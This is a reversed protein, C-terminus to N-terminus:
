NIEEPQASPKPIDLPKAAEQRIQEAVQQTYIKAASEILHDVNEMQYKDFTLPKDMVLHLRDSSQTFKKLGQRVKRIYRRFQPSDYLEEYFPSSVFYVDFEHKEALFQIAKLSQQNIESIEFTKDKIIDLHEIFDEEVDLPNPNYKPMFGSSTVTFERGERFTKEPRQLFDAITDNSTYLHFFRLSFWQLRHGINLDLSPTFSQLTEPSM